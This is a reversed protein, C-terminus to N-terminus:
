ERVGEEKAVYDIWSKVDCFHRLDVEGLFLPFSPNPWRAELLYFCTAM